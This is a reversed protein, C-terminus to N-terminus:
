AAKKMAVAPIALLWQHRCNWGGCTLLVNPLQGNSMEAIQDRTYTKAAQILRHCFPRTKKDDPGATYKYRQEQEPLGKEIAQFARDTATRYWTAMATDALGRARGTAINLKESLAQVLDTFKLGGVSMLVTQVANGAVGELAMHLSTSANLQLGALLSTDAMSLKQIALPTAMQDSLSRITENLFPLQGPFEGVFANVLSEWGLDDMERLFVDDLTRLVRANARSTLIVGEADTSLQKQLYGAVRAQARVVMIRLHDEFAAILADM